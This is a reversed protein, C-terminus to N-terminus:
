ADLQYSEQVRFGTVRLAGDPLVDVRGYASHEPGSGEVMAAATVYHIGSIEKYDNRHYHGQFVACVKGSGELVKRVEAANKVGYHGGVDLRQHLFVITNVKTKHLDDALWQLQAPPINSDTWQFNRREYPQMDHRFCADLVVFHVDNVDFSYYSRPQGVIGLFEAKTLSYVCHNGLVFHQTGPLKSFQQHIKQLYGKEVDLSDASDIFDGLEIAFQVRQRDFQEAAEALKAPTQRYFRTGGAPKDAYHLDTVFGFRAQPSDLKNALAIRSRRGMVGGTVLLLAGDRLFARRGLQAAGSADRQLSTLEYRRQERLKSM